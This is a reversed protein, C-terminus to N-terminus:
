KMRIEAELFEDLDGDLVSEPNTTEINTRLDKVMKYPHLVYNRIQNGWGAVKYEGKIDSVEKLHQEEKIRWLKGKLIKMANERNQAQNRQTSSNITIGTPIHTIQVASSTKNVNQGGPGGSKVAKFDIDKEPIVIKEDNEDFLPIVEVGAFTTQRLGQSNFPSIRVLRHAGHERKLIGFSLATEIEITVTSIGTEGGKLIDTVSYKWGKKDFYMTYMRFLMSAWDNAETGGQGAYITLVTPYSDYEGSLFRRLLFADLENRLKEYESILQDQESEKEISKFLESLSAIDRQLYEITDITEKLFSLKNMISKARNTNDWFDSNLSEKELELLQAKLSDLDLSNAIDNSDKELDDIQRKSLNTM